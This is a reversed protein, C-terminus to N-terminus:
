FLSKLQLTQNNQFKVQLLCVTDLSTIHLNNIFFFVIRNQTGLVKQKTSNDSSTNHIARIAFFFNKSRVKASLYM